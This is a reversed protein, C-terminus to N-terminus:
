QAIVKYQTIFCNSNIFVFCSLEFIPPEPCRVLSALNQMPFHGVERERPPCFLILYLTAIFLGYYNAVFLFCSFIYVFLYVRFM